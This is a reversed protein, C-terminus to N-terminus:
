PINRAQIPGYCFPIKMTIIPPIMLNWDLKSYAYQVEVGLWTVCHGSINLSLEGWRMQFFCVEIVKGLSSPQFFVAAIHDCLLLNHHCLNLVVTLIMLSQMKGQFGVQSGPLSGCRIAWGEKGGRPVARPDRTTFLSLPVQDSLRSRTTSWSQFADDRYISDSLNGEVLCRGPVSRLIHVGRTSVPQWSEKLM